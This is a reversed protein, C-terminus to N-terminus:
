NRIFRFHQLPHYTYCTAVTTLSFNSLLLRKELMLSLLDGCLKSRNKEETEKEVVSWKQLAVQEM